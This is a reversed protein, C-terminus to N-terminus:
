MQQPLCERGPVSTFVLAEERPFGLVSKTEYYVFPKEWQEVANRTFLLNRSLASMRSPLMNVPKTTTGPQDLNIEITELRDVPLITGHAVEATMGASAKKYATMGVQTHSMHFTAGSALNWKDKGCGHTAAITAVVLGVDANAPMNPKAVM